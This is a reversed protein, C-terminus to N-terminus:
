CFNKKQTGELANKLLLNSKQVELIFNQESNVAVM